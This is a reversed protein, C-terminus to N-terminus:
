GMNYGICEFHFYKPQEPCRAPRSLYILKFSRFQLDHKLRVQFFNLRELEHSGMKTCALGIVILCLLTGINLLCSTSVLLVRHFNAM